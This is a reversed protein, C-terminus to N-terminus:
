ALFTWPGLTNLCWSLVTPSSSVGHSCELALNGGSILIEQFRRGIIPIRLEAIYLRSALNICQVNNYNM